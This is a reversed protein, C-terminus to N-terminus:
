KQSFSEGLPADKVKKLAALLFLTREPVMKYGRRVEPIVAIPGIM